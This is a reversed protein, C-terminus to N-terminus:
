ERRNLEPVVISELFRVAALVDSRDARPVDLLGCIAEIEAGDIGTVIWYSNMGDSASIRQMRCQKFVDFAVQNEPLLEFEEDEGVDITEEAAELWADLEDPDAGLDELEDAADNVDEEADVGRGVWRLAAEELNQYIFRGSAIERFFGKGSGGRM